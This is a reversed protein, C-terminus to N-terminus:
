LCSFLPDDSLNTMGTSDREHDIKAYGGRFFLMNDAAPPGSGFSFSSIEVWTRATRLAADYNQVGMQAVPLPTNGAFLLPAQPDITAAIAHPNIGYRQICSGISAAAAEDRALVLQVTDEFVADRAEKMGLGTLARVTKIIGVEDAGFGTL